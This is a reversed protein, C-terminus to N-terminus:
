ARGEATRARHTSDPAMYSALTIALEGADVEVGAAGGRDVRAAAGLRRELFGGAVAGLEVLHVAVAGLEGANLM